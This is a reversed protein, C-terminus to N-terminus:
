EDEVVEITPADSDVLLPRGSALAYIVFAFLLINFVIGLYVIRKIKRLRKDIAKEFLSPPTYSM